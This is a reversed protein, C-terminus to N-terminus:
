QGLELFCVLFVCSGDILNNSWGRLDVKKQELSVEVQIESSQLYLKKAKNQKM